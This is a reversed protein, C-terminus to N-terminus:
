QFLSRANGNPSDQVGDGNSSSEPFRDSKHKALKNQIELLHRMNEENRITESCARKILLDRDPDEYIDEAPIIEAASDHFRLPIRRSEQNQPRFRNRLCQMLFVGLPSQRQSVGGAICVDVASGFEKCHLANKHCLRVTPGLSSAQGNASHMLWVPCQFRKAWDPAYHKCLQLILERTGIIRGDKGEVDRLSMKSSDDVIIGGLRESTRNELIFEEVLHWPGNEKARNTNWKELWMEDWVVSIKRNLHAVMARLRDGLECRSKHLSLISNRPQGTAFSLSKIHMDHKGMHDSIVIWQLDIDSDFQAIASGVAIMMALHSKGGGTPMILGHTAGVYQGGGLIDNLFPVGTSIQTGM